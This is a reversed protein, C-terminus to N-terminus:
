LSKCCRVGFNQSATGVGAAQRADSRISAADSIYGGGRRVEQALCDTDWVSGDTPAGSLSNHWCDAVIEGVNGAMDYLGYKSVGGPHTGIPQPGGTGCGNGGAPLYSFSAFGECTPTDSGWPYPPMNSPCPDDHFECGGRAAVEWEAESCLRKGQAECYTQAEGQTICNVPYDDKDAVVQSGNSGGAELTCQVSGLNAPATCGSADVCAQYQAATVEYQDIAFAAGFTVKFAPQNTSATCENATIANCGMYFETAPIHVMGLSADVCFGNDCAFPATCTVGDCPDPGVVEASVEGDVEAGDDPTDPADPMPEAVDVAEVVEVTEPAQEPQLEPEPEPTPDPDPTADPEADPQAVDPEADPQTTDPTSGVEVCVKGQALGTDMCIWGDGCQTNNLCRYQVGGDIPLTENCALASSATLAVLWVLVRPLTTSENQKVSTKSV